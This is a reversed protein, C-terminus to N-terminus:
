YIKYELNEIVYNMPKNLEKYIKKSIYEMEKLKNELSIKEDNDTIESKGIKIRKEINEIREEIIKCEREINCIDIINPITEWKRSDIYKNLGKDTLYQEFYKLYHKMQSCKNDFISRIYRIENYKDLREHFFDILNKDEQFLNETSCAKNQSYRIKELLDLIEKSCKLMPNIESKDPCEMEEYIHTPKRETRETRETKDRCEIDEDINRKNIPYFIKLIKGSSMEIKIKNSM